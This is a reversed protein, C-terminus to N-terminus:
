LRRHRAAPHLSQRPGRRGSLGPPRPVRVAAGGAGFCRQHVHAELGGASAGLQRRREEADDPSDVHSGPLRGGRCVRCRRCPQTGNCQHQYGLSVRAPRDPGAPAARVHRSRVPVFWRRLCVLSVSLAGLGLPPCHPHIKTANPLGATSCFEPFSMLVYQDDELSSHEGAFLRVVETPDRLVTAFEERQVLGRLVFINLAAARALLALPDMVKDDLLITLSKRVEDAKMQGQLILSYRAHLQLVHGSIQECALEGLQPMKELLVRGLAAAPGSRELADMAAERLRFTLVEDGFLMRTAALWLALQSIHASKPDWDGRDKRVLAEIHAVPLRCWVLQCLVKKEKPVTAVLSDLLEQDLKETRNGVMICPLPRGALFAFLQQKQQASLMHYEDVVLVLRGTAGTLTDALVSALAEHVLRNDSCDFYKFDVEKRERRLTKMYETKGAGPPSFLMFVAASGGDRRGVAAEFWARLQAKWAGQAGTGKGLWRRDGGCVSAVVAEASSDALAHLSSPGKTTYRMPQVAPIAGQPRGTVRALEVEDLAPPPMLTVNCRDRNESFNRSIDLNEFYFYRWPYAKTYEACWKLLLDDITAFGRVYVVVINHAFQAVFHMYQQDRTVIGQARLDAIQVLRLPVLLDRALITHM